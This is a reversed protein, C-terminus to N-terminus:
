AFAFEGVGIGNCGNEFGHTPGLGHLSGTVQNIRTFVQVPRLLHNGLGKTVVERRQRHFGGFEHRHVPLGAFCVRRGTRHILLHQLGFIHALHQEPKRTVQTHHHQPQRRAQLGQPVM